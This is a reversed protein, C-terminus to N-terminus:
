IIKRNEMFKKLIYTEIIGILIMVIILVSSFRVIKSAILDLSKEFVKEHTQAFIGYHQLDQTRETLKELELDIPKLDKTRTMSSYDKAAVGYKLEFNITINQKDNNKMCFKFHGGEYTTFPYRFNNSESTEVIKKKPNIITTQM